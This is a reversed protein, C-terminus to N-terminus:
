VDTPCHLALEKGGVLNIGGEVGGRGIAGCCGMPAGDPFKAINPLIQKCCQKLAPLKDSMSGPLKDLMNDPWKDLLKNQLQLLGQRQEYEPLLRVIDRVM